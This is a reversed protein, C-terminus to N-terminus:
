RRAHRADIDGFSPNSARAVIPASEQTQLSARLVAPLVNKM